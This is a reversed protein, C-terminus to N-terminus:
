VSSGGAAAIEAATENGASERRGGFVVHAGAAAFRLAANKGLGSTAGPIVIVKGDLRM